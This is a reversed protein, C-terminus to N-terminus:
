EEDEAEILKNEAQEVANLFRDENFNPNTQKLLKLATKWANDYAWEANLSNSHNFAYEYAGCIQAIVQFDKRTM